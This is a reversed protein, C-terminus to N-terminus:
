ESDEQCLEHCGVNQFSGTIKSEFRMARKGFRGTARLKSLAKVLSALIEQKRTGLKDKNLSYFKTKSLDTDNDAPQNFSYATTPSRLPSV